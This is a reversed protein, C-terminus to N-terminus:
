RHGRPSLLRDPPAQAAPEKCTRVLATESVTFLVGVFQRAKKAQPLTSVAAGGTLRRQAGCTRQLETSIRNRKGHIFGPFVPSSQEGPCGPAATGVCSNQERCQLILTRLWRAM